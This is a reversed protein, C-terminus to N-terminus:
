DACYDNIAKRMYEFLEPKEQIRTEYPSGEFAHIKNRLEDMVYYMIHKM